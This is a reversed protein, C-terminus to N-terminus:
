IKFNNSLSIFHPLNDLAIGLLNHIDNWEYHMGDTVSKTLALGGIDINRLESCQKIEVAIM